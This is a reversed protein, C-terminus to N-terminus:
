TSSQCKEVLSSKLNTFKKEIQELDSSLEEELPHSVRHAAMGREPVLEAGGIGSSEGRVPALAEEAVEATEIKGAFDEAVRATQSPLPSGDVVSDNSSTSAAANQQSSGSQPMFNRLMKAAGIKETYYGITKTLQRGHDELSSTHNQTISLLDLLPERPHAGNEFQCYLGRWFNINQPVIGGSKFQIVSKVSSKDYLPNVFQDDQSFSM